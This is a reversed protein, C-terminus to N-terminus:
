KEQGGHETKGGTNAISSQVRLGSGIKVSELSKGGEYLYIHTNSSWRKYITKELTKCRLSEKKKFSEKHSANCPVNTDSYNNLHHEYM